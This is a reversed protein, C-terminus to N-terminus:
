LGTKLAQEVQGVGPLEPTPRFRDVPWPKQGRGVLCFVRKLMGGSAGLDMPFLSKM